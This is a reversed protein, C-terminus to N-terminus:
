STSRFTTALQYPRLAGYRTSQRLVEHRLSSDAAEALDVECINALCLVWSFVQGLEESIRVHHERRRIAQALEGLEEVAWTIAREPELRGYVSVSVQQMERLQALQLASYAALVEPRESGLDKTGPDSTWARLTVAPLLFASLGTALERARADSQQEFNPLLLASGNGALWKLLVHAPLGM